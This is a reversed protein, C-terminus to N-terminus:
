RKRCAWEGSLGRCGMFESISTDVYDNLNTRIQELYAEPSMGNDSVRGVHHSRHPHQISTDFYICHLNGMASARQVTARWKRVKPIFAVRSLSHLAPSYSGLCVDHNAGM